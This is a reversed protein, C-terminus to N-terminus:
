EGIADPVIVRFVRTARDVKLSYKEICAPILAGGGRKLAVAATGASVELGGELCFILVPGGNSAFEGSSDSGLESIAFENAPTSYIHDGGGGEDKHPVLPAFRGMEYTM